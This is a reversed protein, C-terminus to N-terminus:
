RPARDSANLVRGFFSLMDKELQALNQPHPQERLSEIRPRLTAM